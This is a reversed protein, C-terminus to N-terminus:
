VKSMTEDLSFFYQISAAYIIIDFQKDEFIGSDAHGYIFHLNPKYYFIRAAQQVEIFNIDTGIVKSEPISALQNSLWGNGCGIELIDLPRKKRKLHATLKQSSAKRIQWEKYYQHTKDIDPLIM